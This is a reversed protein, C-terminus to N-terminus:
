QGSPPLFMSNPYVDEPETGYPAVDAPDSFMIVGIARADQCNKVRNGRFIKGYRLHFVLDIFSM